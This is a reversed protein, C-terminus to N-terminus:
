GNIMSYLRVRAYKWYRDATKRSIGLEDAAEQHSLGGFVRLKVLDAKVPDEEAFKDLCDHIAIIEESPLPLEIPIDHAVHRQFGGGRKQTMRARAHDVLIQRMAQAATRLFHTRSSWEIGDQRSTLKVFVEHVLATAQLTHDTREGSLKQRALYRLESQLTEVLTNTSHSMAYTYYRRGNTFPGIKSALVIVNFRHHM